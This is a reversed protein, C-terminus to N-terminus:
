ESLRGKTDEIVEGAVVPWVSLAMMPDRQRQWSGTLCASFLGSAPSYQQVTPSTDLAHFSHTILMAITSSVYRVDDVDPTNPNFTERM